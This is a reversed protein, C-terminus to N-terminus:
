VDLNAQSGSGVLAQHEVDQLCPKIKFTFVFDAKNPLSTPLVRTETRLVSSQSTEVLFVTTVVTFGPSFDPTLSGAACHSSLLSQIVLRM